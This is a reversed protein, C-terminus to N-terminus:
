VSLGLQFHLTPAHRNTRREQNSYRAALHIIKRMAAVIIVMTPQGAAQLRARVARITTNWRLAAVAPLLPGETPTRARVELPPQPRSRARDFM